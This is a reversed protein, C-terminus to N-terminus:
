ADCILAITLSKCLPAAASLLRMLQEPLTDFGYVFLHKDRLFGSDALRGAVYAFNTRATASAGASCRQPVPCLGQALDTLKDRSSGAPCRYGCLGEAQGSDM